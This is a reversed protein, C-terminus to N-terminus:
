PVLLIVREAEAKTFGNSELAEPLVTLVETISDSVSFAYACNLDFHQKVTTGPM